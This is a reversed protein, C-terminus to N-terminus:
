NKAERKLDGYGEVEYDNSTNVMVAIRKDQDDKYYGHVFVTKSGIESSYDADTVILEKKEEMLIYEVAVDSAREVVEDKTMEDEKNCGVLILFVTTLFIWGVRRM